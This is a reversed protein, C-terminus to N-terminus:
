HKRSDGSPTHLILFYDWLLLFFVFFTMSLPPFLSFTRSLVTLASLFPLFLLPQLESFFTQAPPPPFPSIGRKRMWRAVTLGCKEGEMKVSDVTLRCCVGSGRGVGTCFVVGRNERSGSSLAIRDNQDIFASQTPRAYPSGIKKWGKGNRM